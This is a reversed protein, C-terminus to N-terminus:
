RCQFLPLRPHPTPPRSPPPPPNSGPPPGGGEMKETRIRAQTPPLRCSLRGSITPFVHCLISPPLPVRLSGRWLAGVWHPVEELLPAPTVFSVSCPPVTLCPMSKLAPTPPDRLMPHVPSAPPQNIPLSLNIAFCVSLTLNSHPYHPTHNRHLCPKFSFNLASSPFPQLGPQFSDM